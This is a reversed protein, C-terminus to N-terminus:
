REELAWTPGLAVRLRALGRAAASKVTGCRAAWRGRRTTSPSISSSGCCSPRASAGPCREAARYSTTVGCRQQTMPTTAAAPDPRQRALRRTRDLALNTAVRAVWAVAYDAVRDWRVLARALAEQACDEADARRGLVAFGARYAVAYLDDFREVFGGDM